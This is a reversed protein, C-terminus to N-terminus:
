NGDFDFSGLGDGASGIYTDSGNDYEIDGVPTMANVAVGDIYLTMNSNTADISVAVHRWGTGTLSETSQIINDSGSSEYYGILTGDSEFYLAPSQGM